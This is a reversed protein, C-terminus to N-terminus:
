DITMGVQALQTNSSRSLLLEPCSPLLEIRISELFIVFSEGTLQKGTSPQLWNRNPLNGEEVARAVRSAPGDWVSVVSRVWDRAHPFRVKAM